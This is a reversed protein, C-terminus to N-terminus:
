FRWYTYGIQEVVEMDEKSTVKLVDILKIKGIEMVLIAFRKMGFQM